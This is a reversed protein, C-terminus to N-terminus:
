GLRVEWGGATSACGGSERQTAVCETGRTCSREVSDEMSASYYLFTSYLINTSYRITDYLLTGYRVTGYLLASCPLASGLRASGLPASCFLASCVLLLDLGRWAPCIRGTHRRREAHGDEQVPTPPPHGRRIHFAPIRIQAFVVSGFGIVEGPQAPM